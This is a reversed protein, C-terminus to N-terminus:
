AGATVNDYVCVWDPSKECWDAIDDPTAANPAVGFRIGACGYFTHATEWSCIPYDAVGILRRFLYVHRFPTLKELLGDAFHAGIKWWGYKKGKYHLAKINMCLQVKDSFGPKYRWVKVSRRTDLPHVRFRWLAEAIDTANIMRGAHSAWSRGEFAGCTAWRILRSIFAQGTECVVDGCQFAPAEM